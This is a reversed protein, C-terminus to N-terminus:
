TSATDNRNPEEFLARLRRYLEPPLSEVDNALLAEVFRQIDDDHVIWSVQNNSVVADILALREEPTFEPYRSLQAVIGHTESFSDSLGLREILLRKELDKALKVEPVEKATFDALSRFLFVDSAQADKWESRLYPNIESMDIASAFDGDASVLHLDNPGDLIQDEDSTLLLSVWNLADGISGRKGPPRGKEVRERAAQLIEPTEPIREAFRFLGTIISDAALGEARADAKIQDVLRDRTRSFEDKLEKLREREPYAISLSPLELKVTSGRVRRISDGIRRDRNRRFEDEVQQPLLLRVARQRLLVELKRLEELDDKGFTYFSLYTNADLFLRTRM